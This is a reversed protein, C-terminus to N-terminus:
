RQLSSDEELGDIGEKVLVDAECKYFGSMKM